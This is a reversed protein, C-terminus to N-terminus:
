QAERTVCVEFGLLTLDDHPEASPPELTACTQLEGILRQIPLAARPTVANLWGNAPTSAPNSRQPSPRRDCFALEVGDTYLLIKDRPRLQIELTPFREGGFIGLLGGAPQLESIDGDSSILFPYPHGGRALQLKLTRDNFLGYCATVFQCNPLAQEALAANLAGMTQGPTLVTTGEVGPRTSVIARKIFMTLLSAAMGHGVADAIYFATTDKDIRFVDFIDGSVWSIPCFAAAFQANGFPHTLDPLFDRQLRGALRMEQDVERFHESLRLGLRKMHDLERDLREILGQYRAVMALRGRLEALPIRCDITEVLSGSAASGPASQDAMVLAAIRKAEIVKLLAHFDARSQESGESTQPSDLIVADVHGSAATQIAGAYNRASTVEWGIDRFSEAAGRPLVNGSSNVVLVQM